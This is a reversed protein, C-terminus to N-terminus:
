QDCDIHAIFFCALRREQADMQKGGSRHVAVLLLMLHFRNVTFQSLLNVGMISCGLRSSTEGAPDLM